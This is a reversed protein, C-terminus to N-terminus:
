KPQKKPKRRSVALPRKSKPKGSGRNIAEEYPLSKLGRSRAIEIFKSQACFKLNKVKDTMLYEGSSQLVWVNQNDLLYTELIEERIRKKIKQSKIPFLLEIRRDFNRQMCDASGVYIKYKKKNGFCFVRSHELFRGIISRVIINESLGKLGPVLSCMGRVILEIRVGKSSAAYLSDIIEKDVLSNVKIIIEGDGSKKHRVTEKHILDILSKRLYVPAVLLSNMRPLYKEINKFDADTQLFNIGTVLNFLRSVDECIEIDKTFLGIDTYQKATSPNYNGTSMHCYRQIYGNERRAVICAKSHTKLDVYGYVVNVGAKELKRAWVINNKEDFRAKLEVVVTVHKGNNVADILMQVISSFNGARYLMQKIAVVNPDNVAASLFETFTYFSDFPHHVLIDEDSILEFIDSSQHFRRPLRPNFPKYKLHPLKTKYVEFLGTHDIIGNTLFIEEASINLEKQFISLINEPFDNEVELRVVEQHERSIIEKQMAKLLDTIDNELLNYDLNRTVRVPGVYEFKVNFFLKSLHAIVLNDLPLVKVGEGEKIPLYIYRPLNDPVHLCCFKPSNDLFDLQNKEPVMVLYLGLNSFFPFPHSADYSLPTLIPFVKNNFYNEVYKLQSDNLQDHDVFSIGEADLKKIIRKFSEDKEKLIENIVERIEHTLVEMSTNDYYDDVSINQRVFQKLGAMRVMFFEDLNGSCIALFKLQELLPNNPHSSQKLVRRNFELLSLERNFYKM